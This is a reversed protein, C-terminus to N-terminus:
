ILRPACAWGTSRWRSRGSGARSRRLVMGFALVGADDRARRSPPCLPTIWSIGFAVVAGGTVGMHALGVRHARSSTPIALWDIFGPLAALLGGVLGCSLLWFSFRWFPDRSVLQVIDFAPVLSLLAIPFHVLMPHIAHGLATAKGQM